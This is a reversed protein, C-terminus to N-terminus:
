VIIEQKNSTTETKNTKPTVSIAANNNVIISPAVDYLNSLTISLKHLEALSTQNIPIPINENDIIQHHKKQLSLIENIRERFEHIYGYEGERMAKYWHYSERKIRKRINTLSQESITKNTQRLIESIIESNPLRKITLAAVISHITRREAANFKSV